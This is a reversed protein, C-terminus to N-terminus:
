AYIPPRRDTWPRAAELQGAVRILLDERGYGAVLQGGIPLGEASWHLPLSIAPQGTISWPMTFLGFVAGIREETLDEFTPTVQQVTPTVLLDFGAAWWEPARCVGAVLRRVAAQVEVASYTRGLEARARMGPEVDDPGLARGIREGWADLTAATNSTSVIRLAVGLGTPGTLAPPFAEEVSHGLAELLMGTERAARVCEDGVPLGLFLDQVLLGIRLRGPPIGVEERYPREPPPAVFLDGPMAGAMADLIAATDRVSHTLVGEAIYGLLGPSRAPGFSIRGRSPKLAV